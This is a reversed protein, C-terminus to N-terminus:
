DMKFIDKNIQLLNLTSLSDTKYEIGMKAKQKIIYIEQRSKM